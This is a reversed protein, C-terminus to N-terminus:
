FATTRLHEEFCKAINMAFCRHQLGKNFPSELFLHKGAFIAFNKLAAKRYFMKPQEM